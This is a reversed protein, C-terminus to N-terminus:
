AAFGNIQRWERRSIKLISYHKQDRKKMRPEIRDPRYLVKSAAILDLMDEYLCPLRWFPATSMKLSYCAILRIAAAMSLRDIVKAHKKAARLMIWRVLNFAIIRAYLEKYIGEVSKSRLVDAHLWIKIEEIFTEVKWRKKYLMKIEDAPYKQANNLSTILWFTEKRGRIRATIKIIRVIISEPLTPDKKRHAPTIPMVVSVDDERLKKIIKLKEVKLRHHARTIFELGRRMYEVYLNAGAYRRDGVIIDGAQLQDMLSAFLANEGTAYASITHGICILTNLSFAFVIRAIPFRSKGHKSNTRGFTKELEKADPMSCCTGDIGVVRHGRWLEEKQFEIGIHTCIWQFIAAWLKLPLRKRGKALIDSQNTQGVNHWASQFSGERSIAAGIMHFVIVIPTLIRNRFLYNCENCLQKIVKNPLLERLGNLQSEELEKRKEKLKKSQKEIKKISVKM